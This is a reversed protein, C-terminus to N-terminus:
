LLNYSLTVSNGVVAFYGIGKVGSATWGSASAALYFTIVGPNTPGVGASANTVYAGNNQMIALPVLKNSAPQLVTPLGTLTFSVLTSNFACYPLNINVNGGVLSYACTLPANSGGTVTATFSGSTPVSQPTSILLWNGNYYMVEVAQGGVIQGASLATGTQNIIAQTGLSNVTFTSAGTNTNAAIFIIVIGNTLATFNATFNVIYANVAGTDVGGFLTLLQSNIVQDTTKILNGFQDFEVFKYGTNPITWINAEGRANLTIPNSNTTTGTSDVYTAIPTASGASYTAVTGFANPSGSSLWSKFTLTPILYAVTM